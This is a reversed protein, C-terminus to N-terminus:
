GRSPRFLYRWEGLTECTGGRSCHPAGSGLVLAIAQALERQGAPVSLLDFDSRDDQEDGNEGLAARFRICFSRRTLGASRISPQILLKTARWRNWAMRDNQLVM